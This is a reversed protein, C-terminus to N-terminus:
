RVVDTFPIYLTQVQATDGNSYIVESPIWYLTDYPFDCDPFQKDLEQHQHKVAHLILGLFTTALVGIIYTILKSWDMQPFKDTNM